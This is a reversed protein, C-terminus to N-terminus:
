RPIVRADIKFLKRLNQLSYSPLDKRYKRAWKLSDIFIWHTPLVQNCRKFEERMFHIDFGDNNHAVLLAPKSIFQCMKQIVESFTPQDKVMENSIHHVNYAASSILKEPNILTSFTSGDSEKIFAIEIIRETTAKLGTTETDYYIIDLEKKNMM